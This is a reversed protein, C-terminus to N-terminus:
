YLDIDMYDLHEAADFVSPLTWLSSTVRTVPVRAASDWFPAGFTFDENTDMDEVDVLHGTKEEVDDMEIEPSHEWTGTESLRFRSLAACLLEVDIKLIEENRNQSAAKQVVM